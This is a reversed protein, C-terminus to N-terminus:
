GKPAGPARPQPTRAPSIYAAPARARATGGCTGRGTKRDQARAARYRRFAACAAYFFTALWGLRGWVSGYEAIRAVGWQYAVIAPALGFAVMDSLSDYQEGFESQTRTLRAVRGDLGDLVMAVFIAVVSHEFRQNMAQVIAYFGAFLAATTFLNPLLYIGRRRITGRLLNRRPNGYEAV